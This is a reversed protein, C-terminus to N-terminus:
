KDLVEIPNTIKCADIGTAPRLKEPLISQQRDMVRSGDVYPSPSYAYLRLIVPFKEVPIDTFKDPYKIYLRTEKDNPIYSTFTWSIEGQEDSAELVVGPLGVLHRPAAIHPLDTTFWAIWTRGGIFCTAKKCRYKDITKEENTVEWKNEVPADSLLFEETIIRYTRKMRKTQPDYFYFSPTLRYALTSDQEMKGSAVTRERIIREGVSQYSMDLTRDPAVMVIRDEKYIRKNEKDYMYTWRYRIGYEATDANAYFTKAEEAENKAMQAYKKQMAEMQAKSQQALAPLLTSLCIILTLIRTQM